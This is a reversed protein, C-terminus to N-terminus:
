TLHLRANAPRVKAKSQNDEVNNCRWYNLVDVPFRGCVLKLPHNLMGPSEDAYSSPKFASGPSTEKSKKSAM